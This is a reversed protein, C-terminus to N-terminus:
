PSILCHCHRWQVGLCQLLELVRLSAEASSAHRGGMVHEFGKRRIGSRWPCGGHGGAEDKYM